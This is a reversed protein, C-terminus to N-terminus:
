SVEAVLWWGSLHGAPERPLFRGAAAGQPEAQDGVYHSQSFDMLQLGGDKPDLDWATPMHFAAEEWGPLAAGDRSGFM